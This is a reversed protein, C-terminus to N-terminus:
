KMLIKKRIFPTHKELWELDEKTPSTNKTEFKVDFNCGNITKDKIYIQAEDLDLTSKSDILIGDYILAEM